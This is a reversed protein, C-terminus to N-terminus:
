RRAQERNASFFSDGFGSLDRGSIVMDTPVAPASNRQAGRRSAEIIAIFREVVESDFQTGACRRLEAIAEEESLPEHYVTEQRMADYAEAVSLVRAGWPVPEADTDDEDIQSHQGTMWTHHYKIINILLPCSFTSAVIEVGFRVHNEITKREEPSLSAPKFLISDPIGLKGIDHLLAATELIYCERVPLVDSAILVCLDAVRRSHDATQRDRYQMAAMLASVAHFPVEIDLTDEKSNRPPPRHTANEVATAASTDPVKDWRVVQNRGNHKAAYLCKDAQEILGQPSGAGFIRSAVGLSVTVQLDGLLMGEIAVRVREAQDAASNIDADPLLICFEEGGYRCVAADDETAACITDAVKELVLDGMAHGHRDNVLKFFDIDLMLCSLPTNNRLALQWHRDLTEFFSRRNLCGTLPDETAMRQLQESHQRMAARWTEVMTMAENLEEKEKELHTVDEFCVLVSRANPTAENVPSCRVTFTASAGPGSDLRAMIGIVRNGDQITCQWPTPDGADQGEIVWPLQSLKTGLLEAPTKGVFAAFSANALMINEQADVTVLGAAMADLVDRVHKDLDDQRPTGRKQQKHLLAGLLGLNVVSFLWATPTLWERWAV